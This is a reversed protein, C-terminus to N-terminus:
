LSLHCGGEGEGRRRCKDLLPPAHKSQLTQWTRCLLFYTSQRSSIENRRRHRHRANRANLLCPPHSINHNERVASLPRLGTHFRRARFGGSCPPRLLGRWREGKPMPAPVAVAGSLRANVATTLPPLPSIQLELSGGQTGQERSGLFTPESAARREQRRGHLFAFLSGM